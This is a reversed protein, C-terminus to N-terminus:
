ENDNDLKLYPSISNSLGGIISNKVFSPTSIYRVCDLQFQDFIIKRFDNFVDALLTIYSTLYCELHEKLNKFEMKKYFLQVENYEDDSIDKMTLINNFHQKEPLDKENLNNPNVYTYPFNELKKNILKFNKTFHKKTVIKLKNDLKKSLSDLNGQLFALSDIIKVRYKKGPIHFSLMKFKKNNESLCNIRINPIKSFINIMYSNDYGKSNHFLVILENVQKIKLNCNNCIYDIISNKKISHNHHIVKRNVDDFKYNCYPCIGTEDYKKQDFTTMDIKYNLVNKNIKEIYDLENILTDRFDELKDFLQVKKSYKQNVCDLYYGSMLHKHDYKNDNYEMYSEIDAYMIFNHKITNQWNYFKLYKQTSPMLIMTKNSNCFQSHENYKKESFFTNCCSRCFYSKNKSNPYFFRDINKILMYHNEFLLLDLFKEHNKDSRFVPIKEKLNKNCSYVYINTELLNKIKKLDQIKVDDFNYEVEYELKKVYEKDIKSVRESHKNVPNLIKSYLLISFM